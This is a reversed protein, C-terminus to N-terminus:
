VSDAEDGVSARGPAMTGEILGPQWIEELDQDDTAKRMLFYLVTTACSYYSFAWGAVLGAVEASPPTNVETLADLDAFLEDFERHSTWVRFIGASFTVRRLPGARDPALDQLDYWRLHQEEPAAPAITSLGVVALMAVTLRTTRPLM